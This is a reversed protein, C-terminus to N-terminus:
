RTIPRAIVRAASGSSASARMLLDRSAAAHFYGYGAGSVDTQHAARAEGFYAVVHQAEIDIDGLDVNEMASAHRNVLGSEGFHDSAVDSGAPQPERGVDICADAVACELEDGYTSRGALVTRGIPLVHDRSRAASSVLYAALAISAVRMENMFSSALRASSSPASISCTRCPIPASGRM